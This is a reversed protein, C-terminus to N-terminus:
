ADDGPCPHPRYGPDLCSAYANDCRCECRGSWDRIARCASLCVGYVAACRVKRWWAADVTPDGVPAVDPRGTALEETSMFPRNVSAASRWDFTPAPPFGLRAGRTWGWADGVPDLRERVQSTRGATEALQEFVDALTADSFSVQVVMLKKGCCLHFEETTTLEEIAEKPITLSHACQCGAQSLYPTVKVRDPRDAVAEVTALLGVPQEQRALLDELSIAEGAM